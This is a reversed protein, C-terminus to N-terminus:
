RNIPLCLLCIPLRGSYYILNRYVYQFFIFTLNRVESECVARRRPAESSTEATKGTSMKQTRGELVVQEVEEDPEISSSTTAVIYGERDEFFVTTVEVNETGNSDPESLEAFVTVEEKFFL